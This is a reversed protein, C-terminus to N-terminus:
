PRPEQADPARHSPQPQDCRWPTFYVRDGVAIRSGREVRALHSRVRTVQRWQIVAVHDAPDLALHQCAVRGTKVFEEAPILRTMQGTRWGDSWAYRGEYVPTSCGSTALLAFAASLLLVAKMMMAPGGMGSEMRKRPDTGTSITFMPPTPIHM